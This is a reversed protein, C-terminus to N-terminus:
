ISTLKTPLECRYAPCFFFGESAFVVPNGERSPDTLCFVEALGASMQRLHTPLKGKIRKRISSGTIQIYIHTIYAPLEERIFAAFAMDVREELGTNFALSTPHTAFGNDELSGLSEVVSNSYKISKLAKLADFYSALLPLSSPLATQVFSIFPVLLIPNNLILALHQQFSLQEPREELPFKTGPCRVPAILNFSGLEVEDLPHFDDWDFGDRAQLPCM